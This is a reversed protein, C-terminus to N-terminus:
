MEEKEIFHRINSFYVRPCIECGGLLPEGSEIRLILKRIEQRIKQQPKFADEEIMKIRKATSINFEEETERKIFESISNFLHSGKAVLTAGIWIKEGELSLATPSGYVIHTYVLLPINSKVFSQYKSAKNPEVIPENEFEKRLKEMLNTCFKGRDREVKERIRESDELFRWVAPYARL